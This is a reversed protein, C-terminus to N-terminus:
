MVTHLFLPRWLAERGVVFPVSCRKTRIRAVNADNTRVAPHSHCLVHQAGSVFTLM